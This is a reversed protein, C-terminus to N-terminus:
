DSRTNIGENKLHRYVTSEDRKLEKAIQSVRKKKPVGDVAMQTWLEKCEQKTASRVDTYEWLSKEPDYPCRVDMPLVSGSALHRSKEFKTKVHVGNFVSDGPRELKIVSDCADSRSSTGRQDGSKGAHHVFLTAIGQHRLRILFKQVPRWVDADNESGLSLLASLNDLVLLEAGESEKLIARQGEITELGPLAGHQDYSYIRLRDMANAPLEPALGRLLSTFRKQMATTTMEADVYCVAAPERAQWGLFETGTCVSLAVASAFFTKGCGAKGYVMSIDQKALWPDLLPTRAPSELNLFEGLVVSHQQGSHSRMADEQLRLLLPEYDDGAQAADALKQANTWTVRRANQKLLIECYSTVKPKIPLGDILTSLYALGGARDVKEKLEHGLTVPDIPQDKLDLNVMAEFIIQHRDSSFHTAGILQQAVDLEVNNLVIAGLITREVEPAVPAGRTSTSTSDVLGHPPDAAATM